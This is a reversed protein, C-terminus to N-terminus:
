HCYHEIQQWWIEQVYFLIARMEREMCHIYIYINTEFNVIYDQVCNRFNELCVTVIHILLFSQTSILLLQHLILVCLSYMRFFFRYSHLWKLDHPVSQRQDALVVKLFTSNPKLYIVHTYSYPQPIWTGKFSYKILFGSFPQWRFYIIECYM